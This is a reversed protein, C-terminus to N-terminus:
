EQASSQLRPARLYLGYFWYCILVLTRDLKVGTIDLGLTSHSRRSVRAEMCAFPLSGSATLVGRCGDILTFYHRYSLYELFEFLIKVRVCSFAQIQYELEVDLVVLGIVQNDLIAGALHSFAGM